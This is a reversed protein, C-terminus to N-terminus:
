QNGPRMSELFQRDQDSLIEIDVVITDGNEKLLQVKGGAQKLYTARTRFDGAKTAWTRLGDPRSGVQSRGQPTEGMELFKSEPSLRELEERAIKEAATGVYKRLVAAYLSEARSRLRPTPSAAAIRAKTIAEAQELPADLEGRKSVERTVDNVDGKWDVFLRLVAQAEHLTLAHQLVDEVETQELNSQADEVSDDIQKRLAEFYEKAKLAPLAYSNLKNPSGLSNLEALLVGARLRDGDSLAEGVLRVTEGLFGAQQLSFTRGSRSVAARLMQPLAEGPLSGAGGYLQEGDARVVYLQPIGNGTM